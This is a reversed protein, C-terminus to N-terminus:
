SHPASQGLEFPGGTWFPRERTQRWAEWLGFAIIAIGIINDFGALFPSALLVLLIMGLGIASPPETSVPPDALPLQSPDKPSSNPAAPEAAQARRNRVQEARRTGDKFAEELILAGYSMTIAFYTLAVALIQFKRGGRENIAKMIAKAVLWGVGIAVIGIQFGMKFVAWYAIGGVIAAGLGYLLAKSFGGWGKDNAHAAEARTRCSFCVANGCVEHYEHRLATGCSSCTAQGPEIGEATEFQLPQPPPQQPDPETM